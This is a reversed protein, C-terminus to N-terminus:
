SPAQRRPSPCSFVSCRGRPAQGYGAQTKARHCEPTLAVFRLRASDEVRGDIASDGEDIRGIGIGEAASRIPYAAGFLDDSAPELVFAMTDYQRALTRAAHPRGRPIGASRALMQEIGDISCQPAESGVVNVQILNM